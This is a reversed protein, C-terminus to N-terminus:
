AMLFCFDGVQRPNTLLRLGFRQNPSLGGFSSPPPSM